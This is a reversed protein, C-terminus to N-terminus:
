VQEKAITVRNKTTSQSRRDLIKTAKPALSQIETISCKYKLLKIRIYSFYYFSRWKSHLERMPIIRAAKAEFKKALTYRRAHM